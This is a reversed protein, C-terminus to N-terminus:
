KTYKLEKFWLITIGDYPILIEGLNYFHLYPRLYDFCISCIPCNTNRIWLYPGQFGCIICKCDDHFTKM